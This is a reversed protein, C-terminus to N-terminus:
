RGHVPVPGPAMPSSIVIQIQLLQWNGSPSPPVGHEILPKALRGMLRAKELNVHILKNKRKRGREKGGKKNVGKREEREEM